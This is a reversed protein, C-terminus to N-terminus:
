LGLITLGVFIVLTGAVLVALAALVALVLDVVDDWLQKRHAPARRRRARRYRHRM